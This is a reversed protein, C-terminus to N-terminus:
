NTRIFTLQTGSSVSGTNHSWMTAPGLSARQIGITASTATGLDYITRIRPSGETFIAEAGRRM